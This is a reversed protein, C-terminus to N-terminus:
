DEAKRRERSVNDNPIVGGCEYTDTQFRERGEGEKEKSLNVNSLVRACEFVDRCGGGSKRKGGM